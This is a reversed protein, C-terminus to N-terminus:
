LDALRLIGRIEYVSGGSGNRIARAMAILGAVIGDIRETSREKDPMLNDNHDRKVSVNSANWRLVPNNGHNIRHARVLAEFEKSPENMTKTGQITEVMTVGKEGLNTAIQTANWADFGVEQIMYAQCDKVIRDEVANYDVVNGETATIYGAKIWASYPVRDRRERELVNDAPVFFSCLWVWNPDEETPVFVKVWATLDIKTSLDLGGFCVRGALAELDIKDPCADWDADDFKKSLGVDRNDHRIVRYGRETLNAIFEVPWRTLQAGLGMILLIVPGNKPGFEEYEISISNAKLNAM